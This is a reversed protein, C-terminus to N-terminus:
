YKPAWGSLDLYVNSKHRAMALAEDWGAHGHCSSASATARWLDFPYGSREPQPGWYTGSGSTWYAFEIRWSRTSKPDSQGAILTSRQSSSNAASGSLGSTRGFIM